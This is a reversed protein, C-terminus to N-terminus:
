RDNDADVPLPFRQAPAYGFTQSLTEIVAHYFLHLAQMGATYGPFAQIIVAQLVTIYPGIEPAVQVSVVHELSQVARDMIKGFSLPVPKPPHLAMANGDVPDLPAAVLRRLRPFNNTAARSGRMDASRGCKAPLIPILRNYVIYFFRLLVLRGSRRNYLGRERLSLALTLPVSNIFMTSSSGEDPRRGGEGEHLLSYRSIPALRSFFYINSWAKIQKVRNASHQYPSSLESIDPYIM